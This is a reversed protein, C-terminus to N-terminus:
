KKNNSIEKELIQAIADPISFCTLNEYHIIDGTNIGKLQKIIAEIPVNHQISISILRAISETFGHIDTGNKKSRIFVEIPNNNDDFNITFHITGFKSSFHYTKGCLVKKRSKVVM